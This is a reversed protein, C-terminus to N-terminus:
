YKRKRRKQGPRLCCMGRVILRITVGAQSAAYLEDILEKDQLSNLKIVVGSPWGPSQM